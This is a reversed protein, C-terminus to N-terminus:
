ECRPAEWCCHLEGSRHHVFGALRMLPGIKERPVRTGEEIEAARARKTVAFFRKLSEADEAIQTFGEGRAAGGPGLLSRFKSAAFSCMTKLLDYAAGGAVNEAVAMGIASLTNWEFEHREPPFYLEYIAALQSDLVM